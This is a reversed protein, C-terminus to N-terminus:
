REPSVTRKETPPIAKPEAVPAGSIVKNVNAPKDGGVVSFASRRSSSRAIRVWEGNVRAIFMSKSSISSSASPLGSLPM